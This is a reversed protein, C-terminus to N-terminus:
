ATGFLSVTVVLWATVRVTGADKSSVPVNMGSSVDSMAGSTAPRTTAVGTFTPSKTFSPCIMQSSSWRSACNRSSWALACSVSAVAASRWICDRM